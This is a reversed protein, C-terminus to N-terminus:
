AVREVCAHLAALMEHEELDEEDGDRHLIHWLAPDEQPDEGAPLWKVVKAIARREGFMRAVERGIWAHGETQWEEDGEDDMAVPSRIVSDKSAGFQKFAKPSAFDLDWDDSKVTVSMTVDVGVNFAGYGARTIEFPPKTVLVRNPTYDQHIQFLVHKIGFANETDRKGDPGRVFCTWQHPMEGAINKHTNGITLKVSERSYSVPRVVPPSQLTESITPKPPFTPGNETKEQQSASALGLKKAKRRQHFASWEAASHAHKEAEQDSGSEEALSNEATDDQLSVESPKEEAKRKLGNVEAPKEVPNSQPSAESPEEDAKRKLGNVEAPKRTPSDSTPSLPVRLPALLPAHCRCTAKHGPRGCTGDSRKPPIVKRASSSARHHISVAGDEKTAPAIGITSSSGIAKLAAPTIALKPKKREEKLREISEEMEHEELDEEDGDPHLLHWLAPEDVGKGAPIWKTVKATARRSPGFVRMVEQGIWPHGDTQWEEDETEAKPVSAIRGGIVGLEKFSQANEFDLDWSGKKVVGNKMTVVVAVNFVGYGPRTVEFPPKTVWVQNPKYDQHIHFVVHKISLDNSMDKKGDAGRIFCTWQHPMAGTISIHSNGIMLTAPSVKAAVPSPAIDSATPSGVSEIKPADFDSKIGSPALDAAEKTTHELANLPTGKSSVNTSKLNRAAIEVATAVEPDLRGHRRKHDFRARAAAIATPYKGLYQRKGDHDVSYSEYDKTGKHWLIGAYGSATQDSSELYEDGFKYAESTSDNQTSLESTLFERCTAAGCHCKQLTQGFAVFSYDVTIEEGSAIDRVAFFGVRSDLGEIGINWKHAVCNPECSHNAFRAMNAAKCADIVKNNDLAMMYVPTDAKYSQLRKECDEASIVEGVYEIVFCQSKIAECAFLGYGKDLTKLHELKPYICRQFRQNKCEFGAKEVPCSGKVCECNMVRNSCGEDCFQGKSPDCSCPDVTELAIPKPEPRCRELWTFNPPVSRTPKKSQKVPSHTIDEFPKFSLDKDFKLDWLDRKVQGNQLTVDVAVEFEGYGDRTLEFPPQSIMIRSPKYDQHIHFVVNKIGLTKETDRKGTEGRVFCRWQHPRDGAIRMHTNGVTLAEVICTAAEPVKEAEKVADQPAARPIDTGSSEIKKL